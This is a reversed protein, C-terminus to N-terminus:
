TRKIKKIRRNKKNFAVISAEIIIALKQRQGTNLEKFMDKLFQKTTIVHM